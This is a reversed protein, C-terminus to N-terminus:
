FSYRPTRVVSRKGRKPAALSYTLLIEHSLISKAALGSVVYDLSYGLRFGAKPLSIGALLAIADEHRYNLGFWTNEKYFALAGIEGTYTTLDSRLIFMPNIDWDYNVGIMYNGTLNYQRKQVNLAELNTFSIRPQTVNKVGLGISYVASSYAIGLGIDPKTYIVQTTPISPDNEDRPRLKSGDIGRSIIGAAVGFSLKNIGIPIQHAYTLHMERGIRGGGLVDNVITMGVGGTRQPTPSNISIYQTFPSGGPDLSATYGAYQLRVIGTLDIKNTQGSYAPNFYLQNFFYNGFQPNQQAEVETQFFTLGVFLLLSSLLYHLRM